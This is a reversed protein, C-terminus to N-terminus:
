TPYPLNNSIGTDSIASEVTRFENKCKKTKLKRTIDRLFHAMNSTDLGVLITDITVLVFTNKYVLSQLYRVMEYTLFIYAHGLEHSKVLQIFKKLHKCFSKRITSHYILSNLFSIRDVM